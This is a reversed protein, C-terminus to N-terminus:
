YNAAINEYKLYKFREDKCNQKYKRFPLFFVGPEGLLSQDSKSVIILGDPSFPVCSVVIKWTVFFLIKRRIYPKELGSM